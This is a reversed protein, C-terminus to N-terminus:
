EHQVIIRSHNPSKWLNTVKRKKLLILKECLKRSLQSSTTVPAFIVEEPLHEPTHTHDSSIVLLARSFTMHDYRRGSKSLGLRPKTLIALKKIRTKEFLLCLSVCGSNNWCTLINWISFCM